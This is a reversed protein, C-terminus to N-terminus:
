QALVRELDPQLGVEPDEVAGLLDDKEAVTKELERQYAVPREPIRSPVDARDDREDAAALVFVDRRRLILCVDLAELRLRGRSGAIGLQAVARRLVELQRLGIRLVLGQRRDPADGVEAILDDM